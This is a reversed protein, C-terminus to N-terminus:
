SCSCLTCFAAHELLRSVRAVDEGSNWRGRVPLDIELIVSPKAHHLSTLSMFLLVPILSQSHEITLQFKDIEGVRMTISVPDPIFTREVGTRQAKTTFCLWCDVDVQDDQVECLPLLDDSM